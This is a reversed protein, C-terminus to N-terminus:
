FRLTKLLDKLTKVEVTSLVSSYGKTIELILQLKYGKLDTGCSCCMCGFSLNTHITVLEHVINGTVCLHASILYISFMKIKIYLNQVKSERIYKIYKVVSIDGDFDTIKFNNLLLHSCQMPFMSQYVNILFCNITFYLSVLYLLYVVNTFSYATWM